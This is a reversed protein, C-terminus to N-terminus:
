LKTCIISVDSMNLFLRFGSYSERERHPRLGRIIIAVELRKLQYMNVYQYWLSGFPLASCPWPRGWPSWSGWCKQLALHWSWQICPGGQSSWDAACDRVTEELMNYCRTVDWSHSMFKFGTFCILSWSTHILNRLNAPTTAHHDTLNLPEPRNQASGFNGFNQFSVKLWKAKQTTKIKKPASMGHKSWLLDSEASERTSVAPKALGTLNRWACATCSPISRLLPTDNFIRADSWSSYIYIINEIGSNDIQLAKFHNPVNQLVMDFM